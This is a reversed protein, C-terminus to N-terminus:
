RKKTPTTAGIAKSAPCLVLAANHETKVYLAADSNLNRGPIVLYEHKPSFLNLGYEM